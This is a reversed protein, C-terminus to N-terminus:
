SPAGTLPRKETAYATAHRCVFLNKPLGANKVVTNNGM